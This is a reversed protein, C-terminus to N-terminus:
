WGRRVFSLSESTQLDNPCSFGPSELLELRHGFESLPDAGRASSHLCRRALANIGDWAEPASGRGAGVELEDILSM